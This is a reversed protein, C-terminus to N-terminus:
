STLDLNSSVATMLSGGMASGSSQLSGGSRSGSGYIRRPWPSSKALSSAWQRPNLTISHSGWQESSIILSTHNTIHSTHHAIHLLRYIGSAVPFAPAPTYRTSPSHATHSLTSGTKLAYIGAEIERVGLRSQGLTRENKQFASFCLLHGLDSGVGPQLTILSLFCSGAGPLCEKGHFTPQPKPGTPHRSM